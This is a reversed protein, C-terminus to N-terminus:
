KNDNGRKKLETDFFGKKREKLRLPKQTEYNYPKNEEIQEIQGATRDYLNYGIPPTGFYSLM